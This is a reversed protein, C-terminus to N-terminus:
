VFHAPPPTSTVGPRNTTPASTMVRRGRPTKRRTIGVVHASRQTFSRALRSGAGLDVPCTSLIWDREPRLRSTQKRTCPAYLDACKAACQDTVGLLARCETCLVFRGTSIAGISLDCYLVTYLEVDWYGAGSSGEYLLSEYLLSEMLSQGKKEKGKVPWGIASSGASSPLSKTQHKDQPSM